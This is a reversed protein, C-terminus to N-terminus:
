KQIGEELLMYKNMEKPTMNYNLNNMIWLSGIIIILILSFTFVFFTLNWHPKKEDGIHLFFFLQVGLQILALTLIIGIILEHPLIEHNSTVHLNVIFFAILTLVVSIIFGSIYYILKPHDINKKNM